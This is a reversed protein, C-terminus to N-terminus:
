ILARSSCSWSPYDLISAPHPNHPHRTPLQVQFSHPRNDYNGEATIYEADYKKSVNEYGGFVAEDSSLVLKYPGPNCCGVRYDSYSQTPHFNFVFVLDGREAVIVKDGEDQPVVFRASTLYVEVAEVQQALLLQSGMHKLM